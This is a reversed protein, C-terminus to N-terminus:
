ADKKSAQLIIEKRLVSVGPPAEFALQIQKGKIKLVKVLVSSKLTQPLGSIVVEEGAKRSLVLM